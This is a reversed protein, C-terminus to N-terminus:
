RRTSTPRPTRATSRTSISTTRGSRRLSDELSRIVVGARCAKGMIIKTALVVGDRRGKLAQGVIEESEGASYYRAHRRLQDRWGLRPPHHPRRRCPGQEGMSGFMMAGLCYESVPYRHSWRARTWSYTKGTELNEVNHIAFREGRHRAATYANHCYIHKIDVRISPDAKSACGRRM